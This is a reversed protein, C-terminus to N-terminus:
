KKIKKIVLAIVILGLAGAFIYKMLRKEDTSKKSAIGGIAGRIREEEKKAKMDSFFMLYARVRENDTKQRRILQDLEEFDRQQLNALDNIMRKRERENSVSFITSIVMSAVEGVIGIADATAQVKSAKAVGKLAGLQKPTFIASM